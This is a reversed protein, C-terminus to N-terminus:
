LIRLQSSNVTTCKVLHELVKAGLVILDRVQKEVKALDDKIDLTVMRLRSLQRIIISRLVDTGNCQALEAPRTRQSAWRRREKTKKYPLGVELRENSRDM